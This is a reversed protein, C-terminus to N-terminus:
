NAPDTAVDLAHVGDRIRDPRRERLYAAIRNLRKDRSPALGGGGLLIPQVIRDRELREAAARVRPDEGECLVIRARRKAARALLEDRFSM